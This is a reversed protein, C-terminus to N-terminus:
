CPRCAPGSWGRYRALPGPHPRNTPGPIVFEWQARRAGNPRSRSWRWCVLASGVGVPRGPYGADYALRTGAGGAQESLVFAEVVHPVPGRLLRFDVGLDLPCAGTVLGVYGAAAVGAGVTAAGLLRPISGTM